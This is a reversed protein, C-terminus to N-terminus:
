DGDSGLLDASLSLAAAVAAAREVVANFTSAADSAGSMPPEGLSRLLVGADYPVVISEVDPLEAPRTWMHAPRGPQQQRRRQRSRTHNPRPQNM